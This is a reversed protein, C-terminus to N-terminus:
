RNSQSNTSYENNTIDLVLIMTLLYIIATFIESNEAVYLDSALVNRGREWGWM